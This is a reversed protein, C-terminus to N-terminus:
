DKRSLQKKWVSQYNRNLIKACVTPSNDKQSTFANPMRYACRTINDSQLTSATSCNEYKLFEINSKESIKIIIEVQQPAKTLDFMSFLGLYNYLSQRNMNYWGQLAFERILALIYLAYRLAFLYISQLYSLKTM